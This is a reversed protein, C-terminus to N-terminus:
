IKKKLIILNKQNLWIILKQNLDNEIKLIQFKLIIKNNSNINNIKNIVLIKM